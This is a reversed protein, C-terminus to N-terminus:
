CQCRSDSESPTRFGAKIGTKTTLKKITQKALILVPRSSKASTALKKM